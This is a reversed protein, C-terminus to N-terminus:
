NYIVEAWREQLDRQSLLFRTWRSTSRSWGRRTSFSWIREWRLASRVIMSIRWFFSFGIIAFYKCIQLFDVEQLPITKAAEEKFREEWVSAMQHSINNGRFWLRVLSCTGLNNSTMCSVDIISNFFQVKTVTPKGRGKRSEAAVFFLSLYLACVNSCIQTM